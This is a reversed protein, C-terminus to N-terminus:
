YDKTHPRGELLDKAQAIWADRQLRGQYDELQADLHEAEDAGLSAVQEFYFVGLANLARELKPGIGNIQKLDDPTRKGRRAARGSGVVSGNRHGNTPRPAPPASEAPEEAKASAAKLAAVEDRLSLIKDRLASFAFDCDAHVSELEELRAKTSEHASREVDIGLSAARLTAVEESMTGLRTESEAVTDALAAIRGEALRTAEASEAVLGEAEACRVRLLEAEHQSEDLDIKLQEAQQAAAVAEARLREADKRIQGAEERSQAAKEYSHRLEEVQELQAELEKRDREAATEASELASALERKETELQAVRPELLLSQPGVERLKAELEAVDRKARRLERADGTGASARLARMWWGIAVGILSALALSFVIQWVLYLM